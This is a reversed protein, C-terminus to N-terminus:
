NAQNICQFFNEIFLNLTKEKLRVIKKIKIWNIITKKNKVIVWPNKSFNKKWSDLCSTKISEM